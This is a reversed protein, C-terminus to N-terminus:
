VPTVSEVVAQTFELLTSNAPGAGQAVAVIVANQDPVPVVMIVKASAGATGCGDLLLLEATGLATVYGSQPVRTTCVDAGPDFIGVLEPPTAVQDAPAGLVTIGFTDHDNVYSQLDESGSIQAFQVGQADIPATDTLFTDPFFLSFSNTDDTVSIVGDGGPAVTPAPQTTEPATIVFTDDTDDDTDETEPASTPLVTLPSSVVTDGGLTDNKDDDGGGFVLVAGVVVAIAAVAGAIIWPVNNKKSEPEPAAPPMQQPYAQTAPYGQVPPM